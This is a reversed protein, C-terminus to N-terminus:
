TVDFAATLSSRYSNAVAGTKKARPIISESVIKGGVTPYAEIAMSVSPSPEALRNPLLSPFVRKGKLLALFRSPEIKPNVRAKRPAVMNMSGMLAKMPAKAPISTSHRGVGILSLRIMGKVVPM